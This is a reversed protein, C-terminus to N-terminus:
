LSPLSTSLLVHLNHEKLFPFFLQSGLLFLTTSSHKTICPKQRQKPPVRYRAQLLDTYFLLTDTFLEPLESTAQVLPRSGREAQAGGAGQPAPASPSTTWGLGLVGERDRPQCPLLLAQGWTTGGLM